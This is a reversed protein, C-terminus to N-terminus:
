PLLTMLMHCMFFFREQILSAKDVFRLVLIQSSSQLETVNRLHEDENLFDQYDKMANNYPSCHDKGIHKLFSCDLVGNKLLLFQSM